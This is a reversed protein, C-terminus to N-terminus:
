LVFLDLYYYGLLGALALVDVRDLFGGHGPILKGSDKVGAYRKFMSMGLDGMPGIVAVLLGIILGHRLSVLDSAGLARWLVTSAATLPAGFLIGAAYGEWTKGPSVDKVLPTRGLARGVFYAATDSTWVAIVVTLTWFLGDAQARLGVFHSGTWGIYLGGAITMAFGTMANATGQRYRILAWGLTMILLLTIGPSLTGLWPFLQDFFLFTVWLLILGGSARHGRRAVIHVFEIAAICFAVFMILAFWWGGAIVAAIVVILLPIASLIRDRLM